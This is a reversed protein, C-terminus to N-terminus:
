KSSLYKLLKITLNKYKEDKSWMSANLINDHELMLNGNLHDLEHQYLRSLFGSLPKKIKHGDMDYYRVKIQDYRELELTLFPISLCGEEGTQTSKKNIKDIKPNIYIEYNDPDPKVEDINRSSDDSNQEDKEHKMGIFVKKDFGLQNAAIGACPITKYTDFLDALIQNIEDPFPLRVEKTEKKLFNINDPILNEGDWVEVLKKIAM